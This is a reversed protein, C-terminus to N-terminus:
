EAAAIGDNSKPRERQRLRKLHRALHAACDDIHKLHMKLSDVACIIHDISVNPDHTETSRALRGQAVEIGRGSASLRVEEDSLM